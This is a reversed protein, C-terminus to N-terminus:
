KAYEESRQSAQDRVGRDPNILQLTVEDEDMVTPFVSSPLCNIVGLAVTFSGM